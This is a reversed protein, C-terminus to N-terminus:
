QPLESKIDSIAQGGAIDGVDVTPESSLDVDGMESSPIIENSDVSSAFGTQDVAQILEDMTTIYGEKALISRFKETKIKKIDKSMVRTLLDKVANLLDDDYSETLVIESILM